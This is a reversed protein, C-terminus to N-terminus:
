LLRFFDSHGMLFTMSNFFTTETDNGAPGSGVDNVAAVSFTFRNKVVVFELVWILKEVVFAFFCNFTLDM